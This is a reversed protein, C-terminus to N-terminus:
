LDLKLSSTPQSCCLLIEAAALEWLPETTYTVTGDILRTVCTGCFGSRCAFPADIGASEAASLLSDTEAVWTTARESKCFIIPHEPATM